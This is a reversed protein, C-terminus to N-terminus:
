QVIRFWQAYVNEPFVKDSISRDFEPFDQGRLWDFEDLVEHPRTLDYFARGEAAKTYKQITEMTAGHCTYIPFVGAGIAELASVCFTEEFTSAYPWYMCTSLLRRLEYVGLRGVLNVGHKRLKYKEEWIRRFQMPDNPRMVRANFYSYTLWLDLEDDKFWNTLNVVGRDPSSLWVCRNIVPTHERDNPRYPNPIVVAKHGWDKAAKRQEQYSVCVLKDFVCKEPFVTHQYLDHLWLIQVPAYRKELIHPCRSSVLVDPCPYQGFMVNPIYTVGDIEQVQTTPSFVYTDWGANAFQEALYVVSAESAGIGIRYPTTGDWPEVGEAYFYVKKHKRAEFVPTTEFENAPHNETKIMCDYLWPLREGAELIISRKAVFGNIPDENLAVITNPQKNLHEIVQGWEEPTFTLEPDCVCVYRENVAKAMDLASELTAAQVVAMQGFTLTFVDEISDDTRFKFAWGFSMDSPIEDPSILVKVVYPDTEEKYLTHKNGIHFYIGHAYNAALPSTMVYVERFVDEQELKSAVAKGIEYLDTHAYVIGIRKHVLQKRVWDDVTHCLASVVPYDLAKLLSSLVTAVNQGTRMDVFARLAWVHSGYVSHDVVGVTDPPNENLQWVMECAVTPQNNILWMIYEVKAENLEPILRIASLYPGAVQMYQWGLAAAIRALILYAEYQQFPLVADDFTNEILRTALLHATAYEKRSYSERMLYYAMFPGIEFGRRLWENLLIKYNRDTYEENRVPRHKIVLTDLDAFVPTGEGKYELVEHVPNKWVWNNPNRIIRERKQVVVPVDNSDIVYHYPVYYADVNSDLLALAKGGNIIYDTDIVDDADLWMVWPTLALDLAFNRADDFRGTWAFSRVVFRKDENYLETLYELTGDTSGTDVINVETIANNRLLETLQDLLRPLTEMGNKVIMSVTILPLRSM